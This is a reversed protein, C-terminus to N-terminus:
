EEESDETSPEPEADGTSPNDYQEVPGGRKSSLRPWRSPDQNGALPIYTEGGSAAAVVTFTEHPSSGGAYTRTGVSLSDYRASQGAATNPIVITQGRLGYGHAESFSDLGAGMYLFAWKGGEQRKEIMAKIDAKTYERSANEYGDTQIVMLVRERKKLTPKAREFDVISNGIADNLATSGGPAYNTRDLKPVSDLNANIALTDWDTDFLTVTVHYDVPEDGQEGRLDEIYRNFGGRVDEALNHMSGSKDIVMIVHVIAPKSM